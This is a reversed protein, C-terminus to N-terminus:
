AAEKWEYQLKQVASPLAQDVPDLIQALIFQQEEDLTSPNPFQSLIKSLVGEADIRFMAAECLDEAIGLADFVYGIELAEVFMPEMDQILVYVLNDYIEGPYGKIAACVAIIVTNFEDQFLNNKM